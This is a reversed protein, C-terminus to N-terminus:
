ILVIQISSSNELAKLGISPLPTVSNKVVIIENM